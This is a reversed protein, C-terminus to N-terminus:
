FVSKFITNITNGNTINNIIIVKNLSNVHMYLTHISADGYDYFYLFLVIYYYVIILQNKRKENLTINILNIKVYLATMSDRIRLFCIAYIQFKPNM